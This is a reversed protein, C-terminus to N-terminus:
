YGGITATYGGSANGVSEFPISRVTIDTKVVKKTTELVQENQTPTIDTPGDYEDYIKIFVDGRGKISGSTDQSSAGIKGVNNQVQAKM